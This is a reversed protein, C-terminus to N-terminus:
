QSSLEFTILALQFFEFLVYIHLFHSKEKNGLGIEM